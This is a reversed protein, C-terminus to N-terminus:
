KDRNNIEVATVYEDYIMCYEGDMFETSHDIIFDEYRTFHVIDGKKPRSGENEFEFAKSGLAAVVAKNTHALKAEQQGSLIIGGTTKKEKPTIKKVLVYRFLPRFPVNDPVTLEDSM